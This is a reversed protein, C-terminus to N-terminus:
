APQAKKLEDITARRVAERLSLTVTLAARYRQVVEALTLEKGSTPDFRGVLNGVTANAEARIADAFAGDVAALIQDGFATM